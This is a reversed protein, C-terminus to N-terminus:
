GEKEKKRLQALLREANRNARIIRAIESPPLGVIGPHLEEASLEPHLRPHPRPPKRRPKASM